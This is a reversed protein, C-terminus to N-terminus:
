ALISSIAGNDNQGERIRKRTIGYLEWLMIIVARATCAVGVVTESWHIVPKLIPDSVLIIASGLIFTAAILVLATSIHRSVLAIVEIDVFDRWDM